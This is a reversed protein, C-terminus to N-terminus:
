AEGGAVGVAVPEAPEGAPDTSPGAIWRELTEALDGRKIPKTLYGDMDAARCRERDEAMASATLAIIPLRRGTGAEAARIAATAEFGDMVPMQCDMLVVDYRVRAVAEVAEAGNAVLDAQYGAKALLRAILQSNVANDEAALVRGRTRPTDEVPAVPRPAAPAEHRREALRPGVTALLGDLLRRPRIPKPLCAAIGAERSAASVGPHVWSTLLMMPIGALSADARVAHAVDLGSMAPMQMDLLLVHFPAGTAAATRLRALGTAGDEAEDVRMGWGQLQERLIRRNTANDDIVLARLGHLADPSQAPAAELAEGRAMRATFWFTSGRGMESEVGIEGGMLDVLRKCIALGLGTGGFRRTTSSDAQSFAQFLRGRVEAPIGIGTDRVDVRLTLAEAPTADVRMAAVVEGRETFKIANGVLNTLVQRFRGPDGQLVAPVAADVTCLLEVGKSQAREALLEVVEQLAARPDFDVTELELRGAEIKSFDLIDNLITLLANASSQVTNAYERQEPSLDTDLLLGTMGIVGNMPTRIEHSMMALFEAKAQAGAEAQARAERLAADRAQIEGLMGNFGDVLDGVEDRSRRAARLAYDGDQRVRDTLRALDLLPRALLRALLFSLALSALIAAGVVLAARGLKASAEVRVAGIAADTARRSEEIMLAFGRSADAYAANATRMFQRSMEPNVAAREIATAAGHVYAGLEAVLVGHRLAEEPGLAFTGPLGEVRKVVSRVADLLPRGNEYIREETLGQDAEALLDFIAAHTRSLEDFLTTVQQTKALDRASFRELLGTHSRLIDLGALSLLVAFAVGIAPFILFKTRIPIRMAQIRERMSMSMGTVSLLVSAV